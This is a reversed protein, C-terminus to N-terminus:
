KWLDISVPRKGGVEPVTSIPPRSIWVWMSEMRCCNPMHGWYLMRNLWYTNTWVLKLFLLANKDCGWLRHQKEQETRPTGRYWRLVEGVRLVGIIYNNYTRADNTQSCVLRWPLHRHEKYQCKINCYPNAPTWGPIEHVIIYAVKKKKEQLLFIQDSVATAPYKQARQARGSSLQSGEWIIDLNVAMLQYDYWCYDKKRSATAWM